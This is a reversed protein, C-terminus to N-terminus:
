RTNATPALLLVVVEAPAQAAALADSLLPPCIEALAKKTSMAPLLTAKVGTISPGSASEPLRVVRPGALRVPTAPAAWTGTVVRMAM